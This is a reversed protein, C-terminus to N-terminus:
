KSIKRMPMRNINLGDSKEESVHKRKSKMIPENNSNARARTNDGANVKVSSFSMVKREGKLPINNISYVM